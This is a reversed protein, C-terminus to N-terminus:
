SRLFGGGASREVPDNSWPTLQNLRGNGSWTYGAGSESVLSGFASNALVNVWPAPTWQGEGLITVYESGDEAFGGLGNFFELPIRPPPVESAPPRAALLADAARTAPTRRLLRIVQESLTGHRSLLIVRSAAASSTM